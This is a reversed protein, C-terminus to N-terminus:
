MLSKRGSSPHFGASGQEKVEDRAVGLWMLITSKEKIEQVCSLEKEMLTNTGATGERQSSEMRKGPEGRNM